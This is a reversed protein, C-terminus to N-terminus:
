CGFFVFRAQHREAVANALVPLSFKVELANKGDNVGVICTPVSEEM